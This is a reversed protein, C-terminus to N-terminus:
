MLRVQRSSLKAMPELSGGLRKWWHQNLAPHPLQLRYHELGLLTRSVVLELRLAGTEGVHTM